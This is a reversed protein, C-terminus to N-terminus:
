VAPLNAVLWSAVREEVEAFRDQAIPLRLHSISISTGFADVTWSRQGIPDSPDTTPSLILSTHWARAICSAIAQYIDASVPRGYRRPDEALGKYKADIVVGSGSATHEVTNDPTTNYHGASPSGEDALLAQQQSRYQLHGLQPVSARAARHVVGDVYSEWASVMDIVVGAAPLGGPRLSPYEHQYLARAIDLAPRYAAHAPSLRLRAVVARPPPTEPVSALADLCRRLRVRAISDPSVREFRHAAWKLLRNVLNAASYDRFSCWVRAGGGQWETVQRTWDIQGRVYPLPAARPVYSMYPAARLAHSLVRAYHDAWWRHMHRTRRFAGPGTVSVARAPLDRCRLLFEPVAEGWSDLGATGLVKPAVYVEHRAIELYGALGSGVKVQGARDYEVV